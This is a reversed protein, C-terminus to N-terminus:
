TSTYHRDLVFAHVKKALRAFENREETTLADKVLVSDSWMTDNTHRVISQFRLGDRIDPLQAAGDDFSLHAALDETADKATVAPPQYTRAM